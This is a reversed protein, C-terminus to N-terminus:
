LCVPATGAARSLYTEQVNNPDLQFRHALFMASERHSLGRYLHSPACFSNKTLSPLRSTTGVTIDDFTGQMWSADVM